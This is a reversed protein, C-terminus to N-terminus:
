DLTSAHSAGLGYKVKRGKLEYDIQLEQDIHIAVKAGPQVYVAAFAEGYLKNVWDSIDSVGSSLIQQVAQNGSTTAGGFSGGSGSGFFSTGSSSKDENGLLTAVGAGAATVLTQSGIYQKANSKREGAICPIGYPDSIWGLGGQIQDLNKNNQSSNGNSAEAADQPTPLTRVTGDNFVFTISRVQGRVCSLTWDGTASGSVVAGAVDPLDIGNATLNDPGILVKFPYPDNVTGDIPVRGVLATMSTSGMLTSNQPVTYVPKVEKEPAGNRTKALGTNLKAQGSDVAGGFGESFSYGDGSKGKRSAAKPDPEPMDSPEVWVVTDAQGKFNTGDGQDLGFGVPLDQQQGKGPGGSMRTDFEKKLKDLLGQSEKKQEVIDRERKDLQERQARLGSDIRADVDKERSRLRQNEKQLEQNNDQATKMETRMAKVQAVLTAVTDKPTDGQTGLYDMEEPTLEPVELVPETTTKERKGDMVKIVVFVVLIALGVFIWKLAGSSKNISM